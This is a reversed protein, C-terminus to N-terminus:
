TGCDRDCNHAAVLLFGANAVLSLAIEAEFALGDSAVWLLIQASVALSVGVTKYWPMESIATTIAKWLVGSKYLAKFIEFVSAASANSAIFEDILIKMQALFGADNMLFAAIESELIGAAAGLGLLSFIMMIISVIFTAVAIACETPKSARLIKVPKLQKVLEAMDSSLPHDPNKVGDEYEHALRSALNPDMKLLKLLNEFMNVLSMQKPRSGNLTAHPATMLRNSQGVWEQANKSSCPAKDKIIILQQNLELASLKNELLSLRIQLDTRHDRELNAMQYRLNNLAEEYGQLSGSSSTNGM